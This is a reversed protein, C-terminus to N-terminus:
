AAHHLDRGISNAFDRVHNQIQDRIRRFAEKRAEHSGPATTPDPLNWHVLNRTFPWIPSREWRDDSLTVVCAFHEHLSQRVPKAREERLNIGVEDMVEVALPDSDVSRVATSEPELEEGMMRHLFGQAMRSREANGTSFFLIKAKHM